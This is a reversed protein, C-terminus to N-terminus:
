AGAPLLFARDVLDAPDYDAALHLATALDLRQVTRYALSEVNEVALRREYVTFSDAGDYATVRMFTAGVALDEAYDNAVELASILPRAQVETVKPM